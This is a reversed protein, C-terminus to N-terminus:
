EFKLAQMLESARRKADEHQKTSVVEKEFLVHGNVLKFIAGRQLYSRQCELISLVPFEAAYARTDSEIFIICYVTNGSVNEVYGRISPM